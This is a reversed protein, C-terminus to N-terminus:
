ALPSLGNWGRGLYSRPGLTLEPTGPYLHLRQSGTDVAVYDPYTDRNFDGVAVLDRQGGFGSAILERDGLSDARGPHLYLDGTAQERAVLDPFGDKDHDGSGALEAYANWGTGIVVPAALSTGRGRFLLLEGTASRVALLDRYGDRDLDGIPTIERMADFGTGIQVAATIGGGAKGPYLYLRGSGRQRAIVDEYGRKDFDGARVLANMTTWKTAIARRSTLGGGDGTYLWLAGLTDKALLDSWGDGTSDGFPPSPIPAWDVLNSDVNITVGGWTESHGGLYQKMRRQPSWYGAPIASDTLTEVGDWRAFDLFDPRVFDPKNYAAILDAVGSSVSSYFGSFYGLQHLRKTWASM